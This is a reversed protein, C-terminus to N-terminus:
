FNQVTKFQFNLRKPIIMLKLGDPLVLRKEKTQVLLGIKKLKGRYTYVEDKVSFSMRDSLEEVAEASDLEWGESYMLMSEVLFEKVRKKARIKEPVNLLQFVDVYFNVFAKKDNFVFERM